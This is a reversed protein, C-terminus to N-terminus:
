PLDNLDIMELQLAIAHKMFDIGGNRVYTKYASIAFGDPDVGYVVDNIHLTSLFAQQDPYQALIRERLNPPMLEIQVAYALAEHWAGPLKAHNSALLQYIIAHAIEHTLISRSLTRDWPLNWPRRRQSWPSTSSTMRIEQRAVHYFGSVPIPEAGASVPASGAGRQLYVSQEFRITLKLEVSLDGRAFYQLIEDLSACADDHEEPNGVVTIGSRGCDAIAYTPVIAALLLALM